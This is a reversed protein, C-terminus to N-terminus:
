NNKILALVMDFARNMNFIHCSYNVGHEDCGECPKKMGEVKEVLLEREAEREKQLTTYLNTFEKKFAEIAPFRIEFCYQCQEAEWEEEGVQVPISGKGDCSSNICKIVESFREEAATLIHPLTM